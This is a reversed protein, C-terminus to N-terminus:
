STSKSRAEQHLCVSWAAGGSEYYRHRSLLEGHPRGSELHRATCQTAQVMKDAIMANLLHTPIEVGDHVDAYSLKFVLDRM